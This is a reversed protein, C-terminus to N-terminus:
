EGQVEGRKKRGGGECCHLGNRSGGRARRQAVGATAVAGGARRVGLRDVVQADVALGLDDELAEGSLLSRVNKHYRSDIRPLRLYPFLRLSM